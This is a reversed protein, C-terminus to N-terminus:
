PVTFTVKAPYSGPDPMKWGRVADVVCPIKSVGDHANTSAGASTVAGGPAVYATVKVEVEGLGCGVLSGREARVSARVREADWAVPPRLGGVSDIDFGWAFEAPGGGRPKPFRTAAAIALLCEETARHGVTSDRPDVWEVRGDLGVRFYFGMHGGLLEVEGAGDFFCRQFKPMKPELTEHILREPITGMFGEGSVAMSAEPPAEEAGTTPPPAEPETAPEVDGGGCAGTAPLLAAVLVVWAIARRMM